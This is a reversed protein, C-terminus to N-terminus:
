KSYHKLFFIANDINIARIELIPLLDDRADKKDKYIITSLYEKEIRMSKGDPSFYIDSDEFDVVDGTDLLIIQKYYDVSVLIGEIYECQPYKFLFLKQGEKVDSFWEKITM